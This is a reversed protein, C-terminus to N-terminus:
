INKNLIHLKKGIKKWDTYCVIPLLLFILYISRYRVIAGIIPVTYGTILFITATFFFCFYVLSDDASFKKRFFIFLLLLVAFALNEIAFPVYVFSKIETPYPRMLAHNLAQPANLFFSKFNPHLPNIDITSEGLKAVEIFAQQRECVYRPLNTKPSLYGSCFFLIFGALYVGSFILFRYKPKNRALFWALLAPLLVILVYSRLILIVLMFLIIAPIRKWSFRTGNLLFYFHYIVMSLALLTFGDRHIMSSFFLASPLLFICFIVKYFDTPFIKIFVKYLAVPGFFVFFNFFLTNVFFNKGSFIDLIAFTKYILNGKADNWYSKTVDLFGSYGNHHSDEFFNFFYERPNKMLLTYEDIGGNHFTLSDSTPFYYLNFYCTVLSMAVRILFLAVLLRSGLGSNKFFQILTILWCFLVLYAIFLLYFL